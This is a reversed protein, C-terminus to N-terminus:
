RKKKKENGFIANWNDRYARTVAKQGEGRSYSSSSNSAKDGGEAQSRDTEPASKGKLQSEGKKTAIEKTEVVSNKPAPSAKKDDTAM